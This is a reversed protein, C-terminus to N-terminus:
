RYISVLFNNFLIPVAFIFVIFLAYAMFQHSLVATFFRTSPGAAMQVILSFMAELPTLFLTEVM